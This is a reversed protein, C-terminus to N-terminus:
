RRVPLCPGDSVWPGLDSQRLRNPRGCPCGGPGTNFNMVTLDNEESNENSASFKYLSGHLLYGIILVFLPLLLQRKIKVLWYIFFLVNLLILLPVGLSLVSFFSFTKPPLYPLIFSLLLVTSAIANLVFVMKETLRLKKM